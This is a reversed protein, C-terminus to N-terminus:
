SAAIALGRYTVNETVNGAIDTGLHWGGFKVNSMMIKPGADGEPFLAVWYETLPNGQCALLWTTAMASFDGSEYLREMTGSIEITGETIKQPDRSGMHHIEELNGEFDFGVSQIQAADTYAVTNDTKVAVLAQRGTYTVM